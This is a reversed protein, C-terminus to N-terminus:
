FEGSISIMFSKAFPYSSPSTRSVSPDTTRNTGIEPDFGSYKTFTLLNQGSLTIRLASLKKDKKSRDVFNYGISLNKLRVYDGDEVFASSQIKYGKIGNVSYRIYDLNSHSYPEDSGFNGVALVQFFINKYSGNFQLKCIHVPLKDGIITQDGCILEPEGASASTPVVVGILRSLNFAKISKRDAGIRPDAYLIYRTEGKM